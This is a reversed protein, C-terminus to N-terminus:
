RCFYKGIIDNMTGGGIFKHPKVLEEQWKSPHYRLPITKKKKKKKKKGIWSENVDMKAKSYM